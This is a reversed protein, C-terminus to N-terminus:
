RYYCVCLVQICLSSYSFLQQQQKVLKAKQKKYSLLSTYKYKNNQQKLYIIINIFSRRGTALVCKSTSYIFIINLKNQNIFSM